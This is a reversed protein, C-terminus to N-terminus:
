APRADVLQRLAGVMTPAGAAIQARCAALAAARAASFPGAAPGAEKAGVELALLAEVRWSESRTADLVAARLLAAIAGAAMAGEEASAGLHAPIARVISFIAGDTPWAYLGQVSRVVDLSTWARAAAVLKPTWASPAPSRRAFLELGRQIALEGIVVRLDYLHFLLRSTMLGDVAESIRAEFTPNADVVFPALVLASAVVGAREPPASAGRELEAALDEPDIDKAFGALAAPPFPRANVERERSYDYDSTYGSFQSVPKKPVVGEARLEGELAPFAKAAARRLAPDEAHDRARALLEEDARAPELGRWLTWAALRSEAQRARDGLASRAHDVARARVDASRAAISAGIAASSAGRELLRSAADVPDGLELCHARATEVVAEYAPLAVDLPADSLRPRIASELAGALDRRVRLLTPVLALASTFRAPFEGHLPAGLAQVWEDPGIKTVLADREEATAPLTDPVASTPVAGARRLGDLTSPEFAHLADIAEARLAAPAGGDTALAVVAASWEALRAYRYASSARLAATREVDSKSADTARELLRRELDSTDVFQRAALPAVYPEVRGGRALIADVAELMADRAWRPAAGRPIGAVELLRTLLAAHEAAMADTTCARLAREEAAEPAIGPAERDFSLVRGRQTGALISRGDASVGVVTFADHAAPPADLPVVDEVADEGLRRTTIALETGGPRPRPDLSVVRELDPTAVSGYPLTRAVHEREIAGSATKWVVLRGHTSGWVHAGDASVGLAGWAARPGALATHGGGTAADWVSLGDRSSGVFRGDPTIAYASAARGGALDTIVDGTAVDRAQVKDPALVATAEAVRRDRLLFYVRARPLGEGSRRLLVSGRDGDYLTIAGDQHVALVAGANECVATVPAHAERLFIRAGSAVDYVALVGRPAAICLRGDSSFRIPPEAGSDLGAAMSFGDALAGARGAQGGAVGADVLEVTLSAGLTIQGLAVRGDPHLAVSRARDDVHVARKSAVSWVTARTTPLEGVRGETQVGAVVHQGDRSFVIPGVVREGSALANTLKKKTGVQGIWGRKSWPGLAAHPEGTPSWGISAIAPGDIGEDLTVRRGELDVVFAAGWEDTGKTCLLKKGDPSFALAVLSQHDATFGFLRERASVNWITLTERDWDDSGSALRAGDPSFALCTVRVPSELAGLRRGDDAAYLEILAGDAVAITGDSSVAYAADHRLLSPSRPGLERLLRM